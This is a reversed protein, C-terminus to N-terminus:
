LKKRVIDLSSNTMKLAHTIQIGYITNKCTVGIVYNSALNKNKFLAQHATTSIDASPKNVVFQPRIYLGYFDALEMYVWVLEIAEFPVLSLPASEVRATKDGNKLLFNENFILYKKKLTDKRVIPYFTLMPISILFLSFFSTFCIGKLLHFVFSSFFFIM